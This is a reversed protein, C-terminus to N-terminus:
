GFARLGCPATDMVISYFCVGNPYIYYGPLNGCFHDYMDNFFERTRVEVIREL